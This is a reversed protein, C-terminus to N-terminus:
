NQGNLLNEPKQNLTEYFAHTRLSGRFSLGTEQRWIEFRSSVKALEPPLANFFDETPDQLGGRSVKRVLPKMKNIYFVDM